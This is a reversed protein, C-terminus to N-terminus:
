SCQPTQGSCNCDPGGELVTCIYTDGGTCYNPWFTPCSGYQYQCYAGRCALAGNQQAPPVCCDKYYYTQCYCEGANLCCGEWPTPANYVGTCTPCVTNSGGCCGGSSCFRGHWNCKRWDNACGAPQAFARDAPLIVVAVSLGAVKLAVEGIKALLGRRSTQQSLSRLFQSASEEMTQKPMTNM